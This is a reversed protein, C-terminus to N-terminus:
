GDLLERLARAEYDTLRGPMSDVWTRILDEHMNQADRIEREIDPRQELWLVTAAELDEPTLGEQPTPRKAEWADLNPRVDPAEFSPREDLWSLFADHDVAGARRHAPIAQWRLFASVTEPSLTM